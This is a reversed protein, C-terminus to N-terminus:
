YHLLRKGHNQHYGYDQEGKQRAQIAEEKTTFNGLDKLQGEVYIRASWRNHYTNFFVGLHGSSNRNDICRNKNNEGQPICRLNEIRNDSRDGNIHDVVFGFLIPHHFMEWIVRQVRYQKGKFKFIKYGQPNMTGAEKGSMRGSTWVLKGDIYQVPLMNVGM